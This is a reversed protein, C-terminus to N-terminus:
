LPRGVAAFAKKMRGRPGVLTFTRPSGGWDAVGCEVAINLGSAVRRVTTLEPATFGFLVRGPSLDFALVRQGEVTGVWLSGRHMPMGPTWSGDGFDASTRVVIGMMGDLSTV